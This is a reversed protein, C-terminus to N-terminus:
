SPSQTLQLVGMKALWLITRAAVIQRPAPTPSVLAQVTQPEGSLREMLGALEAANLMPSRGFTNVSQAAMLWIRDMDAGPPRSVLTQGSLLATAYNSFMDFPDPRQPNPPGAGTLPANEAAEARLVALESWLARYREMIRDWGFMQEARQRGAAGMRQRLEADDVLRTCADSAAAVDVVIRLCAEGIFRDYDIAGADFSVMVADDFGAPPALTPVRYGDVGDRVTERYGDWDSVLCPLGAAMAEIPTLGFTEQINDALSIFLDSAYWMERRVRPLRGDVVILNVSPALAAAATRFATDISDNAFWGALILHVTKGTREAAQQLAVFMPTPHAKAHYSLRGIFLAAVADDAIGLEARYAARAATMTSRHPFSQLSVGLPIVPLQCKLAAHGGNAENLYSAYGDTLRVLSTKVAQSTCIVADWPQMPSTVLGTLGDMANASSITHTVGTLSYARQRFRRRLFADRGLLPDPRYLCGVRGLDAFGPPSIWASAPGGPATETRYTEFATFSSQATAVCVSREGHAAAARFFAEIFGSGAAHRGMLNGRNTDYGDPHFHIAAPALPPSAAHDPSATADTM